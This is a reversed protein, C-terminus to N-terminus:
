AARSSKTPAVIQVGLIAEPPANPSRQVDAGNALAAAVLVEEIYALEALEAELAAIRAARQGVPTAGSTMREVERMLAATMEAPFLLAMLPLVEARDTRPGSSDWGCGPWTIRLKEGKGIGSITPRALGEVDARIRQEIDASSTPLACLAKREEEKAKRLTRVSALDHGDTKVEVTELVADKPLRDIFAQCASYTSEAADCRHKLAPLDNVMQKLSERM